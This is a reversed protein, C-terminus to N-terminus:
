KGKKDKDPVTHKNPKPKQPKEKPHNKRGM